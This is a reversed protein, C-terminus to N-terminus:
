FKDRATIRFVRILWPSSKNPGVVIARSLGRRVYSQTRPSRNNPFAQLNRRAQQEPTYTRVWKLKPQSKTPTKECATTKGVLKQRHRRQQQLLMRRQHQEPTYVRKKRASPPTMPASPDSMVTSSYIAGKVVTVPEVPTIPIIFSSEPHSPSLNLPNM